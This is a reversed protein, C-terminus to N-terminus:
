ARAAEIAANISLLKTQESIVKIVELIQGIIVTLSYLGEINACSDSIKESLDNMARITHEVVHKVEEAQHNDDSAHHSADAANRDIEQAAAGLENIAAAVSNTRNSQEDSNAMSSNSANVVLQSVDHLKHATGAVERISRHIRE